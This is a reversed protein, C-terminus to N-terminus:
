GTNKKGPKRFVILAVTVAVAIGVGGLIGAVAGVATRSLTKM